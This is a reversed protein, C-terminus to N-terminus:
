ALLYSLIWYHTHAIWQPQRARPGLMAFAQERSPFNKLVEHASGDDLTRQQYTNGEADQRSLPTSSTPVYRNDLFVVRAGPELKSHLLELWGPLRSLPVHSWWCGAFAADFTADGLEALTYADVTALRVAPPLPKTRAVAMTEPNLDTALWSAASRAGHLTWWGTGCAIELVRRGTFPEGLWAEIARLDAQREPKHYIREYTAARQAYYERMQEVRMDEVIDAQM